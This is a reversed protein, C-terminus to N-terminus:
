SSSKMVGCASCTWWVQEMWTGCKRCQWGPKGEVRKELVHQMQAVPSTPTTNTSGARSRVISTPRGSVRRVSMVSATGTSTRIPHNSTSTTSGRKSSTATPSRASTASTPVAGAISGAGTSTASRTSATRSTADSSTTSSEPRQRSSSPLGPGLEQISPSIDQQAAQQLGDMGLGLYTENSFAAFDVMNDLCPRELGCAGCVLYSAPNSLTCTPCTWPKGLLPTPAEDVAIPDSHSRLAPHATNAPPPPASMPHEIGSESPHHARPPAHFHRKQDTILPPLTRGATSANYTPLADRNSSTPQQNSPPPFIFGTNLSHVSDTARSRSPDPHTERRDTSPHSNQESSSLGAPQLELGEEPTWSLGESKGSAQAEQQDEEQALEWLAEAIARDNAQDEEARTRFGNRTAEDAMRVSDKTGSACGKTITARRQAADAIVNRINNTRSPLKGGLKTGAATSPKQQNRRQEAALRSQRRAELQPMRNGGLKKGKGYFGEGTYGKIKLDTYEDRLVNWMAHFSNDHPGIEIHCLEHLLTDVCNELPMFQTLDGPYRLRVCIKRGRDINLGLLNPENPFFEALAGIKWGRTRMIPKVLSAIKQLASLADKARPLKDLHIYSEILADHERLRHM